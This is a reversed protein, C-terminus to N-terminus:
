LEEQRRNNQRREVFEREIGRIRQMMIHKILSGIFGPLSDIQDKFAESELIDKPNDYGFDLGTDKVEQIGPQEMEWLGNVFKHFNSAKWEHKIIEQLKVQAQSKLDEVGLRDALKFVGLHKQWNTAPVTNNSSTNQTSNPVPWTPWEPYSCTYLYLLV